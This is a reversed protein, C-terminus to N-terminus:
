EVAVTVVNAPFGGITLQIEVADGSPIEDLVEVNVQYLGVFGLGSFTVPV